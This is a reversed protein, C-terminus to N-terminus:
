EKADQIRQRQEDLRAGCECWASDDEGPEIAHGHIGCADCTFTTAPESPEVLSQIAEPISSNPVAQELAEWEEYNLRRGVWENVQEITILITSADPLDPTQVDDPAPYREWYTDMAGEPVKLAEVLLEEYVSRRGENYSATDVDGAMYEDALHYEYAEIWGPVHAPSEDTVYLVFPFPTKRSM